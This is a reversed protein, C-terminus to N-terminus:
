PISSRSNRGHSQITIRIGSVLDKSWCLTLQRVYHHSDDPIIRHSVLLDLCPKARNDLDERANTPPERVEIQISVRETLKPPRQIALEWGAEKCWGEYKATRFRGKNRGTAFLNNGSPPTPLLICIKM